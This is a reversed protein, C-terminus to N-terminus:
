RDATLASARVTGRDYAAKADELTMVPDAPFNLSARDGHHHRAGADHLRAADEASDCRGLEVPKGAVCTYAINVTAYKYSRVRVGTYGSTGPKRRRPKGTGPKRPRTARAPKAPEPLQGDDTMGLNARTVNLPNGDRYRAVPCGVIEYLPKVQRGPLLAKIYTGTKNGKIDYVPMEYLRAGILADAIDDDVTVDRCPKGTTMLTIM